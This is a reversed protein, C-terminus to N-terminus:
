SKSSKPIFGMMGWPNTPILELLLDQMIEPNILLQDNECDHDELQPCQFERPGDDTNFISAFFADFVEAKDRDRNTLHVDEDELRIIINRYQRKGNM